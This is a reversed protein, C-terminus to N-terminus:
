FNRLLFVSSSHPVRNRMRFFRYIPLPHQPRGCEHCRTTGGETSGLPASTRVDSFIGDFNHNHELFQQSESPTRHPPDRHPNGFTSDHAGRPGVAFSLRILSVGFYASSLHDDDFNRGLVKVTSRTKCSRSSVNLLRLGRLHRLFVTRQCAWRIHNSPGIIKM